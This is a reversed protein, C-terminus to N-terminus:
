FIFSLSYIVFTGTQKSHDTQKFIFLRLIFFHEDSGCDKSLLSWSKISFDEAQKYKYCLFFSTKSQKVQM